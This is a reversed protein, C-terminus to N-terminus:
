SLAINRDELNERCDMKEEASVQLTWQECMAQLLKRSCRNWPHNDRKLANKNKCFTIMQWRHKNSLHVHAISTRQWSVWDQCCELTRYNMLRPPLFKRNNILMRAGSRNTITLVKILWVREMRQLSSLITGRAKCETSKAISMMSKDLLRSGTQKLIEQNVVMEITPIRRWPFLLPFCRSCM